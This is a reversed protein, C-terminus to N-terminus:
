AQRGAAAHARLVALEGPAYELRNAYCTTCFPHSYKRAEIEAHSAELFDLGLMNERDYVTCCLAVQGDHNIVTQNFRLECDRTGSRMTAAIAPLEAPDRLLDAIIGNDRPNPRGNVRDVVREIPMYFAQTPSYHFGLEACLQRVMPAQDRNSRYIHHGVWVHTPARHLDIWERLKRMNALVLDLRGGAHTREYTDPTFGSLSIKLEHPHAAIVAELGRRINLNSSLHARLGHERALRIMAPLEPNLLPEGWNYLNLIPTECPKERVIKAVIRAFRDLRMLGRPRAGLESNGVPCSPCRLNCTGAVDITYIYAAGERAAYRTLRRGTQPDDVWPSLWDPRRVRELVGATVRDWPELSAAAQLWPEADEWLNARYLEIGLVRQLALLGLDRPARALGAALLDHAELLHQQALLLLILERRTDADGPDKGLAARYCQVAQEQRGARKHAEAAVVQESPAM